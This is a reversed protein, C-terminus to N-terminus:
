EPLEVRVIYGLNLYNITFHAAIPGGLDGMELFLFGLGLGVIFATATWPLYRLGPGVHVVAFIAAGAWVGIWPVLAGRFFLEEGVSSALALVLIDRAHMTGLLGRFWRHLRRAWEFKHVSLRTLFVVVLGAAVGVLPSLALRASSSGPLRYIDPRGRAVGIAVAVLALAGYLGLILTSRSFRPENTRSPLEV